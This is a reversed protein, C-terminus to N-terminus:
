TLAQSYIAPLQLSYTHPTPPFVFLSLIWPTSCNRLYLLVNKRVYTLIFNPSSPPFFFRVQSSAHMSRDNVLPRPSLHILGNKTPPSACSSDSTLGFCFVPFHNFLSVYFPPLAFLNRKTFINKQKEVINLFLFTGCRLSSVHCIELFLACRRLLQM